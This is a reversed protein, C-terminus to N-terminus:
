FDIFYSLVQIIVPALIATLIGNVILGVTSFAGFSPSIEMSKSTGLAHSAMGISFGQSIPNNVKFLKMILYGFMAGFIGVFIVVGATLSPIGGIVRSVDMAIPTTVSKPAMSFVVEKPAGMSWAILVVSIIGTVCGLFSSMVILWAQQKIRKFQRYLPVALCVIAPQLLMNIFESNVHYVEYDIGTLMLFGIIFLMALLIPNLFVLQTKKQIITGLWYAGVTLAIFFMPNDLAAIM